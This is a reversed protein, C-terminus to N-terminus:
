IHLSLTSACRPCLNTSVDVAVIVDKSGHCLLKDIKWACQGKVVESAARFLLLLLLFTNKIRQMASQGAAAFPVSALHLIKM